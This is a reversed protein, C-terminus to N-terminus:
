RAAILTLIEAWRSDSRLSELDRDELLLKVDGFGSVLARKLAEFAADPDGLMAASCALNYQFTPNAPDRAILREDVARGEAHRGAEAYAQALEALIGTSDRGLSIATEYLSIRFERAIEEL